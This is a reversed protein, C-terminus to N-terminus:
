ELGPLDDPSADTERMRAEIAMQRIEDESFGVQALVDRLTSETVRDNTRIVHMYHARLCARWDEYFLSRQGAM